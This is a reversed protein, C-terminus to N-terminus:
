LEHNLMKWIERETRHKNKSSDLVMWRFSISSRLSGGITWSYSTGTKVWHLSWKTLDWHSRVVWCTPRTGRILPGRSLIFHALIRLLPNINPLLAIINWKRNVASEARCQRIGVCGSFRQRLPHPSSDQECQPASDKTLIHWCTFPLVCWRCPPHAEFSWHKRPVSFVSGPAKDMGARWVLCSVRQGTNIVALLWKIM